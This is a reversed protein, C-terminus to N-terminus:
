EQRSIAPYGKEVVCKRQNNEYGNIILSELVEDRGKGILELM